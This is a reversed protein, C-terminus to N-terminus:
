KPKTSEKSTAFNNKPQWSLAQSPVSAVQKLNPSTPQM